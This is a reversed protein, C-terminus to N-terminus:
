PKPEKTVVNGSPTAPKGAGQPEAKRKFGLKGDILSLSEYKDPLAGCELQIKLIENEQAKKALELQLTLTQVQVQTANLRDVQPASLFLADTNAAQAFISISLVAIFLFYHM